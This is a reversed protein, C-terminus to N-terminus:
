RLWAVGGGAGIGRFSGVVNDWGIKVQPYYLQLIDGHTRSTCWGGRRCYKERVDSWCQGGALYYHKERVGSWGRAGAQRVSAIDILVHTILCPYNLSVSTHM